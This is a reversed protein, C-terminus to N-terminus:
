GLFQKLRTLEEPTLFPTMLQVAEEATRAILAVESDLGENIRETQMMRLKKEGVVTILKDVRGRGAVLATRIRSVEDAGVPDSERVDVCLIIKSETGLENALAFVRGFMPKPDRPGVARLEVLRGVHREITTM